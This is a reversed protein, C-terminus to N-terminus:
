SARVQHFDNFSSDGNSQRAVASSHHARGCGKKPLTCFSSNKIVNVHGACLMFILYKSYNHKHTNTAISIYKLHCRRLNIM